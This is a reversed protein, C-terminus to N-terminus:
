HQRQRAWSSSATTLHAQLWVCTWLGGSYLCFGTQGFPHHCPPDHSGKEALTSADSIAVFLGLLRVSKFDKTCGEVECKWDRGVEGGRRRKRPVIDDEEEESAHEHEEMERQEHLRLHARLGKQASFTRGACEEHPCTPPHM